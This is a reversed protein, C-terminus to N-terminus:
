LEGWAEDATTGAAWPVRQVLVPLSHVTCWQSAGTPCSGPPQEPSSNSHYIGENCAPHYPSLPLRKSVGVQALLTHTHTLLYVALGATAIQVAALHTAIQTFKLHPHTILTHPESLASTFTASPFNPISSFLTEREREREKARWVM